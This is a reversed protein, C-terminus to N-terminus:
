RCFFSASIPFDHREVLLGRTIVNLSRDTKKDSIKKKGNNNEDKEGNEYKKWLKKRRIWRRKAKMRENNIKDWWEEIMKNKM